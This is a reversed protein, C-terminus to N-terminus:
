GEEETQRGAQAVVEGIHAMATAATRIEKELPQLYTAEFRASNEDRWATKVQRWSAMLDKYAKTVEAQAAQVSM